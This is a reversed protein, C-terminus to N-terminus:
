YAKKRSNKASASAAGAAQQTKGAVRALLAIIWRWLMQASEGSWGGVQEIEVRKAGGLKWGRTDSGVGSPSGFINSFFSSSTHSTGSSSYFSDASPAADKPWFAGSPPIRVAYHTAPATLGSASAQPAPPTNSLLHDELIALNRLNSKFALDVLDGVIPIIGSCVLSCPEAQM